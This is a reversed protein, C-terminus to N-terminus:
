IGVFGWEVTHAVCWTFLMVPGDVAERGQDMRARGIADPCLARGGGGHCWSMSGHGSGWGEIVATMQVSDRYAIGTFEREKRGCAM